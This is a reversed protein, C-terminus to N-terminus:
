SGNGGAAAAAAAATAAAAAAAAGAGGEEEEELSFKLTHASDGTISVNLLAQQGCPIACAFCSGKLPITSSRGDESVLVFTRATAKAVIGARHTHAPNSSAVVRLLAGHWDLAQLVGALAAGRRHALLEGAYKAWLDHLALLASYDVGSAPLHALASRQARPLLRDALQRRRGRAAASPRALNVRGAPNSLIVAKDPALRGAIMARATPPPMHPAMLRELADDLRSSSSINNGAAPPQTAAPPLQLRSAVHSPVL